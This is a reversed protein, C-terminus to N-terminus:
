STNKSIYCKDHITNNNGLVIQINQCYQATEPPKSAINSCSNNMIAIVIASVAYISRTYSFLNKM